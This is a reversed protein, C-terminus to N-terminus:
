GERVRVPRPGQLRQALESKRWDETLVNPPWAALLTSSHHHRQNHNYAVFKLRQKRCCECIQMQPSTRQSKIEKTSIEQCRWRCFPPSGRLKDLGSVVCSRDLNQGAKQIQGRPQSRESHMFLEQQSLVQSPRQATTQVSHRGLVTAPAIVHTSKVMTAAHISVTRESRQHM